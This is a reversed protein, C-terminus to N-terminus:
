KNRKRALYESEEKLDLVESLYLMDHFNYVTQLEHLTAMKGLILRSILPNVNLERTEYTGSVHHAFKVRKVKGSCFESRLYLRLSEV